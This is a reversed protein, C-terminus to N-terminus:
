SASVRSGRDENSDRKGRIRGKIKKVAWLSPNESQM